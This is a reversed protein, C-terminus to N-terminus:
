AKPIVIGRGMINQLIFIVQKHFVVAWIALETVMLSSVAAVM